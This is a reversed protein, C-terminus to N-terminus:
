GKQPKQVMIVEFWARCLLFFAANCRSALVWAVTGIIDRANHSYVLVYGRTKGGSVCLCAFDGHFSVQLVVSKLM